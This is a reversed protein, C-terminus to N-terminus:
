DNDRTPDPALEEFHNFMPYYLYEINKGIAADRNKLFVLEIERPNKAKAENVNFDSTGAGSLQLGIIVDCTYDIGGSEKFCELAVKQNYGARNFSSIAIISLKEDRSLRKLETLNFDTRIKDNANIYKDEHQILQLYDVIVVPRNGTYEIHNKVIEHITKVSLTGIGEYIYLNNGISNSYFYLAQEILEKEEKSYFKYRSGDTIGRATKCWEYKISESHNRYHCFTLRSISRSILQYKGMELSIIIVDHNQKAIQEAINLCFTTKGLSSIAGVAYLGEYLGGDLAKDLQDFGTKIAPTNVNSKIVNRFESITGGASFNAQYQESLEKRISQLDTKTITKFPKNADQKFVNVNLNRLTSYVEKIYPKESWTLLIVARSTKGLPEIFAKESKLAKSILDIEYKQENTISELVEFSECIYIPAADSEQINIFLNKITSIYLMETENKGELIKRM